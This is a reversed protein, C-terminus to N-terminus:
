LPEVVGQMLTPCHERLATYASTLSLNTLSLMSTPSVRYRAVIQSCFVGIHGTEALRAYLDYDEWGYLRPDTTYGGLARLVDFKFLAMADIYNGTRLRSPEWPFHSLLYRASEDDFASLAGYAFSVHPNNELVSVLSGICHPYIENDADLVFVYEGRAFDLAANRARPLGRNIPHRLLLLPVGPHRHSWREVTELSGDSSGDNVIILEYNYYHGRVVSDLAKEIHGAHNYLATLVSVRPSTAARYGPSAHYREILPVPGQQEALQIRAMGRKMDLLDLRVDKLIRRLAAMNPDDIPYPTPPTISSMEENPQSGPRAGNGRTSVNPPVPRQALTRAAKVLGRVSTRLPLAERIFDYSRQRMTAFLADDGVIEEVLYGLTEARGSIFHQGAVFPEFDTSHETVVVVGCHIADLVRLWEFYPEEGQHLNLLVRSQGLIRLKDEGSLFRNSASFNPGSNDSLIMQTRLRALISGYSALLQARRYTHCGMFLVDIDSNHSTHFRDLWPTYGLQLHMAPIGRRNYERVARPNIDFIAGGLEALRANEEFHGTDPQEGSVFVTRTLMASDPPHQYGELVFYEHPPLLVYVLGKRPSPFGTTSITSPVGEQQLEFCLADALERFFLNQREAMVFVIELM